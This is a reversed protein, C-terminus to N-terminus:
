IEAIDLAERVAEREAAAREVEHGPFPRFGEFVGRLSMIDHRRVPYLAIHEDELVVVVQDGEKLNLAERVRKPLTLQGKSSITATSM